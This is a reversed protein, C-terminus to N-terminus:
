SQVTLQEDMSYSNEAYKSSLVSRKKDLAPATSKSKNYQKKAGYHLPTHPFPSDQRRTPKKHGFQMLGRKVYGPISLHEQRKVHDWDLMIDIYKKVTWDETVLYYKKIVERLHEAHEKDVYKVGFDNVVM